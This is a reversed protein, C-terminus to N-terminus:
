AEMEEKADAGHVIVAGTEATLTIPGFDIDARSEWFFERLVKIRNISERVLPPLPKWLAVRGNELVHQQFYTNWDARAKKFKRYCINIIDVQLDTDVSGLDLLQYVKM